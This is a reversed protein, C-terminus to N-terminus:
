IYIHNLHFYQVNVSKQSTNRKRALLCHTVNLGEDQIIMFTFLNKSAEEFSHNASNKKKYAKHKISKQATHFCVRFYYRQSIHYTRNASFTVNIDLTSHSSPPTLRSSAVCNMASTAAFFSSGAAAGSSSSSSKSSWISYPTM